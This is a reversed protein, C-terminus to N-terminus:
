KSTERRLPYEDWKHDMGRVGIGLPMEEFYGQRPIQAYRADWGGRYYPQGHVALNPLVQPQMQAAGNQLLPAFRQLLSEVEACRQQLAMKDQQLAMKDKQLRYIQNNSEKLANELDAFRLQQMPPPTEEFSEPSSTGKGRSRKSDCSLDRKRKREKQASAPLAEDNKRSVDEEQEVNQESKVELKKHKQISKDDKADAREADRAVDCLMHLLSAGEAGAM